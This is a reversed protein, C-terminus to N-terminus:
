RHPITTPNSFRVKKESESETKVQAKEKLYEASMKDSTIIEQTNTYKKLALEVLNNEFQLHRLRKEDFRGNTRQMKLATLEQHITIKRSELNEKDEKLLALVSKERLVAKQFVPNREPQIAQNKKKAFFYTQPSKNNEQAFSRKEAKLQDLKAASTNAQKALETKRQDAAQIVMQCHQALDFFVRYDSQDQQHMAASMEEYEKPLQAHTLEFLSIRVDHLEQVNFKQLSLDHPNIELLALHQSRQLYAEKLEHMKIDLHDAVRTFYTKEATFDARSSKNRILSLLAENESQLNITVLLQNYLVAKENLNKSTAIKKRLEQEKGLLEQGNLEFAAIVATVSEKQNILLEYLHERAKDYLARQTKLWNPDM